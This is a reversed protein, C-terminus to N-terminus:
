PRRGEHRAASSTQVQYADRGHLMWRFGVEVGWHAVNTVFARRVEAVAAFRRAADLGYALGAGATAGMYFGDLLREVGPDDVVAAVSLGTIAGSVFPTVRGASFPDWRLGARAGTATLSGDVPLGAATREVDADFRSMGVFARLRPTGWYGADLDLTWGLGTGAREPGIAGARASLGAVTPFRQAWTQIPWLLAM